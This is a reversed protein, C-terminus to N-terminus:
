ALAFKIKKGPAFNSIGLWFKFYFIWFGLNLIWFGFHFNMTIILFKFDYNIIYLGFIKLKFNFNLIWFRPDFNM